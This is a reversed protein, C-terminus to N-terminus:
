TIGPSGPAPRRRSPAFHLGRNEILWHVEDLLVPVKQIEDIVIQQGPDPGEADIEQRLLEPHVAYRRFEDAKLLDVWRATPYRQKLLTRKGPRARGGCSSPSGAPIPFRSDGAAPWSDANSIYRTSAM